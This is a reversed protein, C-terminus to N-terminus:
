SWHKKEQCFNEVQRNIKKWLFNPSMETKELTIKIFIETKQAIM